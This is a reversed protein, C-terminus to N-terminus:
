NENKININQNFDDFIYGSGEPVKEDEDMIAASQIPQSIYQIKLSVIVFVTVFTITTIMISMIFRKMKDGRIKYHGVISFKYM